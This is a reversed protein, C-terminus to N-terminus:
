TEQEKRPRIISRILDYTRPARGTAGDFVGPIEGELCQVIENWRNSLWYWAPSVMKMTHMRDRLEPVQRLLLECRRFDDPDRPHETPTRKHTGVFQMANTGTMVTFMSESSLGREGNALWQIAEKSLESM